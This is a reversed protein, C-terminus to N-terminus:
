QDRRGQRRDGLITRRARGRPLSRQRNAHSSAPVLFRDRPRVRRVLRGCLGRAARRRLLDERRACCRRWGGEQRAVPMSTGQSVTDTAPDYIFVTGVDGGPWSTLGGLLYIKGELAVGQVHHITFPLGASASWTETAPDYVHHTTGDGFLHFEGDLEVFAVEARNVPLDAEDRWTGPLGETPEVELANVMPPKGAGSLFDIDLTGDSVVEFSKVVGADAGVDAFIDYDTLVEIGEIEVDFTRAGVTGVKPFIEAFYLRVVYSGQSVPFDWQLSPSGVVALRASQFIKQPTGAPVSPEVDIARSVTKTANGTATSVFSSPARKTDKLWVPSGSVKAGGANVRYVATAANSTGERIAISWGALATVLAIAVLARGIKRSQEFSREVTQM